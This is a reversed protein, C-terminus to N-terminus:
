KNVSIKSKYTKGDKQYKVVYIGRALSSTAVTGDTSAVGHAVKMGSLNYVEYDADGLENLKADSLGTESAETMYILISSVQDYYDQHGRQTFDFWTNASYSGWEYAKNGELPSQYQMFSLYPCYSDCCVATLVALNKGAEYRFPADLTIPLEGTSQKAIDITGDFVLTMEEEPLWGDATNSRDTNAMYVRVPANELDYTMWAGDYLWATKVINMDKDASLEEASYINLAAGYQNSFDFPSYSASHTSGDGLAVLTGDFADRVSVAMLATKNDDECEDNTWPMAVEGQLGTVSTSQPTWTMDVGTSEGTKLTVAVDKQALVNGSQDNLKVRFGYITKVGRNEVTVTYVSEKGVMPKADGTIATAAMNENEAKRVSLDFLELWDARMPSLAHIAFNRYGAKDSNFVFSHTQKDRSGVVALSQLPQAPADFNMDDLLAFDLKDASYAHYTIDARYTANEEFPMYYSILWDDSELTNSAQHGMVKGSSTETWTWAYGDGNLDYITWTNDADQKTFDFDVPMAYAPGLVSPSTSTSGSEGDANHAVVTYYYTATHAINQDSAQKAALNSAVVKGDPYRVVDYRMSAMDVYGGNVGKDTHQWSLMVNDYAGDVNTLKLESVAVPLDHGVFVRQKEEVGDGVENTAVITYTHYDGKTSTLLDTYEMPDGPVVDDFTKILQKDRYVKVESLSQLLEGDVTETPNMWSIDVRMEGNAAPKVVIDSVSSPTGKASTAFPVYLGALQPYDGVIALQTAVGTQTNVTAICDDQGSGDILNAAWYLTEDTHDFEMSQFYTPRFGTAGVLEVAGSQKDVKCLDGDFSIAYLQGDYSCALTFFRRDLAAVQKSEATNLDITYLVSYANNLVSIAYMTHTSYDFTMDNIHSTYGSLPGVEVVEGTEMDYRQLDVPIMAETSVDTQTREVYYYGDAYAGATVDHSEDGFYKVLDFKAGDSIGFHVLGNLLNDQSYDFSLLAYADKVKANAKAIKLPAPSVTASKTEFPKRTNQQAMLPMACLMVLSLLVGGTRKLTSFRKEM